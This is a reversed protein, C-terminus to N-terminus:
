SVSFPLQACKAGEEAALSLLKARCPLFCEALPGFRATSSHPPSALAAQPSPTQLNALRYLFIKATPTSATPPFTVPPEAGGSSAGFMPQRDGHPGLAQLTGANRALPMLVPDSMLLKEGPKQRDSSAFLKFSMTLTIDTLCDRTQQHPAGQRVLPRTEAPRALETM